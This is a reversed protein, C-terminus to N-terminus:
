NIVGSGKYGRMVARDYGNTPNQGARLADTVAVEGRNYVLLALNVNGHYQDVLTRLYRLGVRLNTKRDYLGDRTVGRVFFKATAPMVQTLGIAGKPSTAHDNFDSELRVLRFALDPDIGEELSTDFISTALDGTVKYRTSFDLIRTARDLQARLLNVDGRSTELQSRLRDSEGGLGFFHTSHDVEAAMATTPEPKRHTVLFACAAVFGTVYLGRVLQRRRRLGDGRHVYTGRLNRM